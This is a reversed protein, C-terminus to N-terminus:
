FPIVDDIVYRPPALSQKETPLEHSTGPLDPRKGLMKLEDAEIETTYRDSGAKDTWKRTRLRGEIYVQSGKRLYRGAVEALRRFLVVRHWETAEKMEGTERNRWKDTTALRINCVAAGDSLVRSEPESGLYGILMVRNLDSM